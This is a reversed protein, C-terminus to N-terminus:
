GASPARRTPVVRLSATGESPKYQDDGSYRVTLSQRGTPLGRTPVLVLAMGTRLESSALVSGGLLVQVTGTAPGAGRQPKVWIWVMAERGARVAAPVARAAISSVLRIDPLDVSGEESVNGVADTARFWVTTAGAGVQVPGTYASWQGPEGIRYEVSAVGSGADTATVTVERSGADVVATVVPATTDLPAISELTPVVQQMLGAETFYLHDITTERHTGDGGPIAFRHYVIYWDDTEPVQVISHHGTGKIGLSLDKELLLGQNTWPGTPSPGTAYGVRYNESRTDDISWSLYYTGARENIFLGERFGALGTIPQVQAPDYSTMDQNLPVVYANGNGWYLYSQGDSDTFVVPDIQQAGGFDAKDVLPEGLPETFPGTPSDAVAVGISQDASFYFYYKGNKEIATPAWARTEAWSVDPGLDLIVGHNTWEVLDQSSWVEFTSGSWGAFGDTTAYIYYTDGFRVINPDAYYGPLVPSGMVRVEVTWDRTAGDPGSLTYVVPETFDQVSANGPAVTAEGSVVLRPALSSVDTGPIVPLVIRSTASDIIAPVKLEELVVDSVATNNHALQLVEAGSLSRDFLQFDDVEGDFYPDPYFSKGIYGGFVAAPNHLESPEVTTATQAVKVGDLYYVATDSEGDITVALHKWTAGPLAGTGSMKSETSWSGTTIASFHNGAGNRPTTFLYRTSDAGLAYVWQNATTSANWKVWTSVTLSQRGELVGNPIEVYPATTSSSAGGSMKFSQGEVGVGYAPTRRYAGDNGNGSADTVVVGSTEEFAYDLILGPIEKTVEVAVTAREVGDSTTLRVTTTGVATATVLGSASVAAVAPDDVSWTIQRNSANPPDVAATLQRSGGAGLQVSEPTVTVSTVPVEDETVTVVAQVSVVNGASVTGDVTFEGATSYSGPAVEDWAVAAQRTAGDAFQASVTAPLIPAHDVQVTVAVGQASEVFVDPQYSRLLREHEAATVPMVTGHRPRSPMQYGTSMTWEAANLDTTEFPVYGRGGFEDIFLYWKEETNSKFITPGEGQNVGASLSNAKGICESVFEYATSRLETSREGTIYKSCPTTSTNNREDKTFRYFYGDHETVTSDIVSYGPDIWVQAPTFTQFDRTTAYMVRNYSSGTHGPDSEAYLKSAWFVVYAGISEDYYAEPAWTNGATDPSVKVLRQDTWNVLDTSEWVMISKSGTRQSADWGSGAYIRLDTAIQYFKDGEPSRIIFPDRLGKEGLESTLVPENNNLDQYNLPDNGQSLGFYVQEGNATGEGVFYSFLYGEYDAPAPLPPVTAAIERTATASGVTVTATLTVAQATADFEPRTVVGDTAIVGPASSAWAVTSGHEGTAPLTLNGRADDAGHVVLAQAAAQALPADDDAELVTVTFTKTGTELGKAITATLTVTAGGTGVGPRTVVGTDSVVSPDSSTWTITTAEAGTAPLTLDAAVASTDGLTLAASAAAIGESAVAYALDRVETASLARNYLRFDRVVGRFSGDADYASRGIYNRTTIGAGIDDPTVTMTTTQAVQVGDEYLTGITGEQTFTLHKWGGKALNSGKNVINGAEHSWAADTLGTRYPTTTTFLYGTGSQPSGVATNGLNYVFHNGTLAPDVWVDLSVTISEHGAILNDPLRISNGSGAAGGSFTFGEGANWTAAGEVAGDHGNGSSDVAVTGSTEDLKYWATLGATSPEGAVAASLPAVVLVGGALVAATAAAVSRRLSM